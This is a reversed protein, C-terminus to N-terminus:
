EKTLACIIEEKYSGTRSLNSYQCMYNLRLFKMNRNVVSVPMLNLFMKIRFMVTLVDTALRITREGTKALCKSYNNYKRVIINAYLQTKVMPLMINRLM